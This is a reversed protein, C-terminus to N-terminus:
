GTKPQKHSGPPPDTRIGQLDVTNHKTRKVLLLRQENLDNLGGKWNISESLLNDKGFFSNLFVVEVFSSQPAVDDFGLSRRLFLHIPSTAAM